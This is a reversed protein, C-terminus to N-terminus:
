IRAHTRTYASTWFNTFTDIVRSDNILCLNDTVLGPKVRVPTVHLWYDPDAVPKIWCKRDHKRQYTIVKNRHMNRESIESIRKLVM